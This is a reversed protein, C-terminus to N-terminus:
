ASPLLSLRSVVNTLSKEKVFGNRDPHVCARARVCVYIIYQQTIM